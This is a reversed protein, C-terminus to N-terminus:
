RVGGAAREIREIVLRLTEEAPSNGLPRSWERLDAIIREREAQAIASPDALDSILNHLQTYDSYHISAAASMEDLLDLALGKVGDREKKMPGDSHHTM